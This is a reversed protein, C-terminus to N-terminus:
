QQSPRRHTHGSPAQLDLCGTYIYLSPTLVSQRQRVPLSVSSCCANSLHCVYRSLGSYFRLIRSCRMRVKREFDDVRTLRLQASSGRVCRSYADAVFSVNFCIHRGRTGGAVRVRVHPNRTPHTMLAEAKELRMNRSASYPSHVWGWNTHVMLHCM